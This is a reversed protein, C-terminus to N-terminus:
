RKVTTNLPVFHYVLRSSHSERECAEDFNRSRHIIEYYRMVDNSEKKRYM